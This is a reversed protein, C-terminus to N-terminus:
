KKKRGSFESGIHIGLRPLIARHLVLIVLTMGFAIGFVVLSQGLDGMLSPKVLMVGALTLMLVGGILKLIRGHKEEVRSAKLTFVAVLFIGLEDLQYILMYVLLLLVFTLVSVNQATLLNTWLVPFGATCSFEVLSVGAALVITGGVLGWFSDGADMVKRIKQYIGPKKKADITFSVGEKYWFYDKINVLAFFLAVLAVVVQIWGMFSVVTFMTFLGAIFLAYIAATVTIFVFGIILVKKRSGAHLTIALLMSLVWISCPNFGDVFSILLTSILLSQGTVDVNGILPIKIVKGGAPAGTPTAEPTPVETVSVGSLFQAGKDSYGSILYQEVATQIEEGIFDSYGEWHKEGIFFTPVSKPEFGFGAAFKKFLELNEEDHWVEFSKIQVRPNKQALEELFPKAKACHPCGDGWFFYIVVPTSQQLRPQLSFGGESQSGPLVKNEASVNLTPILVVLLGLVLAIQVITKWLTTKKM